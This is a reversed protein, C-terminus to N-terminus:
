VAGQSVGVAPSLPAIHAKVFERVAETDEASLNRKPIPFGDFEKRGVVVLHDQTEVLRAIQDWSWRTKIHTVTLSLGDDALVLRAEGIFPHNKPAPPVWVPWFRELLPLLVMALAWIVGIGVWFTWAEPSWPPALVGRWVDYAPLIALAVSVVLRMLLMGHRDFFSPPAVFKVGERWDEIEIRYRFSPM